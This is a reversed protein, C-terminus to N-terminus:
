QPDPLTSIFGRDLESQLFFAVQRTWRRARIAKLDRDLQRAEVADRDKHRNSLDTARRYCQEAEKWRGALAHLGGLNQLRCILEPSHRGYLATELRLTQKMLKLGEDGRRNGTVVLALNNLVSSLQRNGPEPAAEVIAAAHRLLEEAANYQKWFFHLSAVDTEIAAVDLSDADKARRLISLARRYLLFAKRNNGLHSHVGALEDLISVLHGDEPGYHQVGLRLAHKLPQLAKLVSRNRAFTYRERYIIGLSTLENILFEPRTEMTKAIDVVTEQETTAKVYDNRDRYVQARRAAELMREVPSARNRDWADQLSTMWESSPQVPSSSRDASTAGYTNKHHYTAVPTESHHDYTERGGNMAYRQETTELKM